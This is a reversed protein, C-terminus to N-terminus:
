KFIKVKAEGAGCGRIQSGLGPETGSIDEVGLDMVWQPPNAMSTGDPWNKGGIVLGDGAQIAQLDIYPIYLTEYSFGSGTREIGEDRDSPLGRNMKRRAPKGERLRQMNREHKPLLRIARGSSGPEADDGYGYTTVTADNWAECTIAKLMAYQRSGTAWARSFALASDDDEGNNKAALFAAETLARKAIGLMIDDKQVEYFTGASPYRDPNTIEPITPEMKPPKVPGTPAIKGPTKRPKPKPDAPKIDDPIKIDDDRKPGKASAKRRLLFFAAVGAAAVALIKKQDDKKAM